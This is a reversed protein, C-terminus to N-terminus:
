AKSVGGNADVQHCETGEKWRYIPEGNERMWSGGVEEATEEISKGRHPFRGRGPVETKKEGDESLWGKFGQHGAGKNVEMFVIKKTAMVEAHRMLSNAAMIASAGKM